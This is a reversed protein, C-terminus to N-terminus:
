SLPLRGPSLEGLWLRKWDAENPLGRLYPGLYDRYDRLSPDGTLARAWAAMTNLRWYRESQTFPELLAQCEPDASRLDVNASSRALRRIARQGQVFEVNAPEATSLYSPLGEAPDLTIDNRFLKWQRRWWVLFQESPRLDPNPALWEPHLYRIQA